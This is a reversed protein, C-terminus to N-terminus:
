GYIILGYHRSPMIIFGILLTIIFGFSDFPATMAEDYGTSIFYAASAM